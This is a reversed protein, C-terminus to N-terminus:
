QSKRQPQLERIMHLLEHQLPRTRRLAAEERERRELSEQYALACLEDDRDIQADHEAAWEAMRSM